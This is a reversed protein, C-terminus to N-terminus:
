KKEGAKKELTEPMIVVRVRGNGTTGVAPTEGSAPTQGDAGARGQVVARGEKLYVVVREGALSNTGSGLRANQSLVIVGAAPDYEALEGRASEDGRLVEVDGRATIKRLSRKEGPDFSVELSAANIRAGAHEVTVNGMYKLTGHEYDFELRDAAIDIPSPVDALELNRAIGAVSGLMDDAKKVTNDAWAVGGMVGVALFIPVPGKRWLSRFDRAFRVHPVPGIGTRSNSRDRNGPPTM